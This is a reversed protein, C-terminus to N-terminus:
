HRRSQARPGVIFIIIIFILINILLLKTIVWNYSTEVVNCWRLKWDYMIHTGKHAMQSCM